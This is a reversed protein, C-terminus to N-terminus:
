QPLGDFIWSSLQAREQDTPQDCTQGDDPNWWCHVPDGNHDVSTTGSPPFRQAKKFKGPFKTACEDPLEISTGCWILDANAKVIEYDGFSKWDPNGFAVPGWIPDDWSWDSSFDATDIFGLHGPEGYGPFHCGNCYKEMFENAFNDYTVVPQTGCTEDTSCKSSVCDIIAAAAGEDAGV